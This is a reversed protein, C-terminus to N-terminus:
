GSEDEDGREFGNEGDRKRRGERDEGAITEGVQFADAVDRDREEDDVSFVVFDDWEVVGFFEEGSAWGAGFFQEWDGGCSVVVQEVDGSILDDCGDGFERLPFDGGALYLKERETNSTVRESNWEEGTGRRRMRMATSGM